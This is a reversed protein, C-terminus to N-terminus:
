DIPNNFRHRGLINHLNLDLAECIKFLSMINLLHNRGYLMQNLAGQTVGAVDALKVLTLGKNRRAAQIEEAFTAILQPDASKRGMKRPKAAPKQNHKTTM